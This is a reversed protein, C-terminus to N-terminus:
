GIFLVLFWLDLAEADLICVYLVFYVNETNM